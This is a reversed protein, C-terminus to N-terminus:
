DMALQFHCLCKWEGIELLIPLPLLVNRRNNNKNNDEDINITKILLVKYM